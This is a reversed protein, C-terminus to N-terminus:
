RKKGGKVSELFVCNPCHILPIRANKVGDLGLQLDLSNHQLRLFVRKSPVSGLLHTMMAM